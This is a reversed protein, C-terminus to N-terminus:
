GIMTAYIGWAASAIADFIAFKRAPYGVAGATLTTATRGGPIYRAVVLLLGGRRALADEAWAVAQRRRSARTPRGLLATGARRGIQYSIHDGVFAGLAAVAIVALVHPEGTTAAFV